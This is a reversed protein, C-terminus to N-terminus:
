SLAAILHDVDADNNYLHPSVRVGLPRLAVLINRAELAEVLAADREKAGLTFVVVASAYAPDDSSVVTVGTKATLGARLRAALALDHAAVAAIGLEEILAIGADMAAYGYRNVGFSLAYRGAGAAWPLPGEFSQPVGAVSANGTFVPQIRDVADPAVYLAGAGFNAMLWKYGHTSLASIRCASVDVPQAGVLQVGDVALLIGARACRAGLSELDMAWGTDWRIASLAVVRTRADTAAMIEDVTPGIGAYAVFRADVGQNRLHHWTYMLSPYDRDPIVANDGARWEIGHAVVNMGYTTNPTLTLDDPQAGILRALGARALAEPEATASAAPAPVPFQARAAYAEVAQRARNPLPGRAACNLYTYERTVPFERERLADSGVTLREGAVAVAAM